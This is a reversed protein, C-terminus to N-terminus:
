NGHDHMEYKKMTIIFKTKKSHTELELTAGHIDAISKSLSLGLGTGKGVEKTTFFPELIRDKIEEPIGCGNDEIEIRIIKDKPIVRLSIEPYEVEEVADASNNLVNTFVQTLLAPVAEVYLDKNNNQYIFNIRQSELRQKTQEIAEEIIKELKYPQLTNKTEQRSFIKLAKILNEIRTVNTRIKDVLMHTNKLSFDEETLYKKLHQTALSIIALPNNVEHAIGSAMVGLSSLKEIAQIKKEQEKILKEKHQREIAISIMEAVIKLAHLEASSWQRENICDDFGILGWWDGFVFIPVIAISLIDQSVLIPKEQEPFNKVCGYILHGNSLLQIWRIYGNDKYSFSQLKSNNIQPKIGPAVWEYLQDTIVEGNKLTRNRFIYTRSVKTTEGLIKLIESIKDEWSQSMYLKTACRSASELIKERLKLHEEAQMRRVIEGVSNSFYYMQNIEDSDFEENIRFFLIVDRILNKDKVPIYAISLNLKTTDKKHIVLKEKTPVLVKKVNPNNYYETELKEIIEKVEIDIKESYLSIKHRENISTEFINKGAEDSFLTIAFCNTIKLANDLFEYLVEDSTKDRQKSITLVMRAYLHERGLFKETKKRQTVDQGFGFIYEKDEGTKLYVSKIEKHVLHGDKHKHITEFPSDYGNKLDKFHQAFKEKTYLVDIEPVSLKRFTPLDYGLSRAASENVYAFKGNPYLLYFENGANDVIYKFIKLQEEIEKISSIDYFFINSIYGCNIKLRNVYLKIWKKNEQKTTIPFPNEANQLIEEKKNFLHIQPFLEKILLSKNNDEPIELLKVATDNAFLVKGKGALIYGLGTQTTINFLTPVYKTSKKENCLYKNCLPYIFAFSNRVGGKNDEPFSTLSYTIHFCYIYKQKTRIRYLTILDSISRKDQYNLVNQFLPYDKKHIHEMWIKPNIGNNKLSDQSFSFFEDDYGDIEGKQNFSLFM